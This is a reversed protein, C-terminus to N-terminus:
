VSYVTDPLPSALCGHSGISFGMASSFCGISYDGRSANVQLMWGALVAMWSRPGWELRAIYYGILL